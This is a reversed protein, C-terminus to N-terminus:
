SLFAAHVRRELKPVGRPPSTNGIAGAPRGGGPYADTFLGKWLFAKDERRRLVRLDRRGHMVGFVKSM